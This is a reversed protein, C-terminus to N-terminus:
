ESPPPAAVANRQRAFWYGSQQTLIALMGGFLTDAIRIMDTPIHARGFLVVSTVGFFGMTFLVTLFLQMWAILRDANM